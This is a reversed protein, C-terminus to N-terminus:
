SCPASEHPGSDSAPPPRATPLTQGALPPVRQDFGRQDQRQEQQRGEAHDADAADHLGLHGDLGDGALSGAGRREGITRGLGRAVPDGAPLLDGDAVAQRVARELERDVRAAQRAAPLHPRRRAVVDREIVEREHAPRPDANRAVM